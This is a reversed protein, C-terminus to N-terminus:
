KSSSTQSRSDSLHTLIVAAANQAIRRSGINTTHGFEPAFRDTFYQSYTESTVVQNFNENSIFIVNQKDTFRNKLATIPRRPYQMAAYAIHKNLLITQLLNYHYDTISTTSDSASQIDPHLSKHSDTHNLTSQNDTINTQVLQTWAFDNQPNLQTAIGLVRSADNFRSQSQYVEGLKILAWEFNNTDPNFNAISKELLIAAQSAQGPVDAHIAGLHYLAEAHNPNRELAHNLTTIAASPSSLQQYELWALTVYTDIHDPHAAIDQSLLEAAKHPKGSQILRSIPDDFNPGYSVPNVYYDSPPSAVTAIPSSHDLTQYFRTTLKYLRFDQITLLIRTKLSPQYRFPVGALEDNIGMMTIVMDPQYKDLNANLRALIFATNTGSIGENFVRFRLDPREQNLVSELQAPWSAEFGATTSEGLALIKYTRDSRDIPNTRQISLYMSGALRLSFELLVLTVVVSALMLIFRNLKYSHRKMLTLQKSEM